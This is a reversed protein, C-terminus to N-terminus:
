LARLLAHVCSLEANLPQLREAFDPNSLGFVSSPIVDVRM